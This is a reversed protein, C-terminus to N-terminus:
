QGFSAPRITDSSFSLAPAPGSLAGIGPAAGMAAEPSAKGQAPRAPAESAAFAPVALLLLLLVSICLKAPIRSM